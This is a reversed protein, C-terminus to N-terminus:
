GAKAGSERGRKPPTFGGDRAGKAKRAEAPLCEAAIAAYPNPAAITACPKRGCAEGALITECPKLGALRTARSTRSLYSRAESLPTCIGSFIM